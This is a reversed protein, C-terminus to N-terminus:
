NCTTFISNRRFAVWSSWTRNPRANPVNYSLFGGAAGTPSDIRTIQPDNAVTVTRAGTDGPGNIWPQAWSEVVFNNGQSLGATPCQAGTCRVNGISILTSVCGLGSSSDSPEYSLAGSVDSSWYDDAADCADWQIEGAARSLVGTAVVNTGGAYECTLPFGLDGPERWVPADEGNCAVTFSHVKTSITAGTTTVFDQYVWYYLLDVPGNVINDNGDSSFRVAMLGDLGTALGDGVTTDTTQFSADLDYLVICTGAP